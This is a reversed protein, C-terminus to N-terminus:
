KFLSLREKTKNDIYNLIEKNVIDLLKQEQIKRFTIQSFYSFTNEGLFTLLEVFAEKESNSKPIPHNWYNNIIEHCNLFNEFENPHISNQILSCIDDQNSYKFNNQLYNIFGEADFQTQVSCTYAIYYNEMRKLIKQSLYNEIGTEVIRLLHINNIRNTIDQFSENEFMTNIFSAQEPHYHLSQVSTYNLNTYQYATEVDINANKSIGLLYNVDCELLEALLILEYGKPITNGRIYSRITARNIYKEENINYEMYKESLKAALEEQTFGKKKMQEQLRNGFENSFSYYDKM